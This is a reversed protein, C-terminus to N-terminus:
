NYYNFKNGSRFCWNCNVNIKSYVFSLEVLDHVVVCMNLRREKIMLM